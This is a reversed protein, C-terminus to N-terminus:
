QDEKGSDTINFLRQALIIILTLVTLIMAAASAEGVRPTAGSPFAADYIYYALTVRSEFPVSSGYLAVQDFLQLTGILSTTTVLFIIPKLSPVIIYAFNQWFSGGEIKSVEYHEKPINQLGALFLLMMSPATTYLNQLTIAWLPVALGAVKETSNLWQIEVLRPEADLLGWANIATMSLAALILGLILNQPEWWTAPYGRMRDWLSLLWNFGIILLGLVLIKVGAGSMWGLFQNMMGNKQFIWLFILTVAASSLISPFYFATRFFSIGRVKRDIAVALLLGLFTQLFTITVSYILTNKVAILFMDNKLINVYNALGVYRPPNFLDYDTFSFWVTRAMAYLFFVCVAIGFPVLFVMSAATDKFSRSM